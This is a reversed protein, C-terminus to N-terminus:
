PFKIRVIAMINVGKPSFLLDKYKFFFTKMSKLVRRTSAGQTMKFPLVVNGQGWTDRFGKHIDDQKLMVKPELQGRGM